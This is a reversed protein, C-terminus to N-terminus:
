FFFIQRLIKNESVTKYRWWTDFLIIWMVSVMMKMKLLYEFKVNRNSATVKMFLGFLFLYIQNWSARERRNWARQLWVPTQLGSQCTSWSWSLGSPFHLLVWYWVSNDHASLLSPASMDAGHRSSSSSNLAPPALPAKFALGRNEKVSTLSSSSATFLFLYM